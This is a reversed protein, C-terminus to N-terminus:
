KRERVFLGNKKMPVYNDLIDQRTIGYKALSNIARSRLEQKTKLSFAAREPGTLGGWVGYEENEFAWKLCQAWIPCGMCVSRVEDIKSKDREEEIDFFYPMDMGVCNGQAWDIGQAFFSM